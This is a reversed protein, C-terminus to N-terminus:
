LFVLQREADKLEARRSAMQNLILENQISPVLYRSFKSNRLVNTKLGVGQLLEEVGFGKLCGSKHKKSM